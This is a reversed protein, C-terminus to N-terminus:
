SISVIGSRSLRITKTELIPQETTERNLYAIWPQRPMGKVFIHVEGEYCLAEVRDIWAYSGFLAQAARLDARSVGRGAVSLELLTVRLGRVLDAPPGVRRREQRWRAGARIDGCDLRYASETRPPTFQGDLGPPSQGCLLGAVAALALARGNM